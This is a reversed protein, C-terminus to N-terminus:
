SPALHALPGEEARLGLPRKRTRSPCGAWYRGREGAGYPHAPVARLKRLESYIDGDSVFSRAVNPGELPSPPTAPGLGRGAEPAPRSCLAGVTKGHIRHWRRAGPDTVPNHSPQASEPWEVPNGNASRM